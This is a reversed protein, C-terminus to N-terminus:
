KLNPNLPDLRKMQELSTQYQQSGIPSLQSSIRWWDFCDRYRGTASKIMQRSEEEFGNQIFVQILLVQNECSILKNESLNRLKEISGEELSSKLSTTLNIPPIILLIGVIFGLFIGLVSSSSLGLAKNKQSEYYNRTSIHTSTEPRTNIEYGILLGSIIWGWVALGIQNISVISQAHYSVWVAFLGVFVPDYEVARRLFKAVSIVVLATMCLYIGLLPFGGNSSLDILVNHAANTVIDPGRRLTADITRARRYWDGYSDLGVGFLPNELSMKWGARWYDGRYTVSAKYLMSALPGSNLSGLTVLAVGIFGIVLSPIKLFKYKSGPIWLLVVVAMGGLLVLFGQQSETEHIVYGATILYIFYSSRQLAKVEKSLLLAFTLVGCFGVFSSQFNPNGLFGIVPSYQNVWNVPDLSAAQIVGYVVSILGAIYLSKSFRFMVFSNAAFVATVFLLTLTLYTIYGTARGFTGFFEQYFNTGSFLLVLTLQAIFLAAVSVVVRYEKKLLERRNSLLAGFAMFGGLSIISFKSVNIPDYAAWPLVVLTALIATWGLIRGVALAESVRIM